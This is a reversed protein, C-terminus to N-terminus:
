SRPPARAKRAHLPAAPAPRAPPPVAAVEPSAHSATAAPSPPLLAAANCFPCDSGGDDPTGGRPAGGGDATGAFGGVCLTAAAAPAMSILNLCLLVAALACLPARLLRLLPM